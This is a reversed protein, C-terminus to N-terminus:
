ALLGNKRLFPNAQLTDGVTCLSGHGPLVTLDVPLAALRTKLDLMTQRMQESDGGLLDSRGINNSFFTDGSFLARAQWNEGELEKLLFCLGGQTHGPTAWVEVVLHEDLRLEEGGKLSITPHPFTRAHAFMKSANAEVDDLMWIDAEACFLQTKDSLWSDVGRLHDYHAHTILIYAIPDTIEEPKEAGPDIVLGGALDLYYTNANKWTEPYLQLVSALDIM